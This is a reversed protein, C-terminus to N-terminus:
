RLSSAGKTRGISCRFARSGWWDSLFGFWNVTWQADGSLGPIACRLNGSDVGRVTLAGCVAGLTGGVLAYNTNAKLLDSAANLARAGSYVGGATATTTDEITVQEVGKALLDSMGILQGSVGPLDDYLFLMTC